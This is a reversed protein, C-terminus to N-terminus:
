YADKRVLSWRSGSCRIVRRYQVEALELMGQLVNIIVPRQLSGSEAALVLNELQQSLEAETM